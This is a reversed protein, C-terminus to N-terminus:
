VESSKEDLRHVVMRYFKHICIHTNQLMLLTVLQSYLSIFLTKARPLIHFLLHQLFPRPTHITSVGFSFLFFQSPIANSVGEFFHQPTVFSALWGGIHTFGDLQGSVLMFSALQSGVTYFQHALWRTTYFQCALWRSTYFQPALWRHTFFQCALQRSTYALEWGFM